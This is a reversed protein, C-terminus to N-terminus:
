SGRYTSYAYPALLLPVHHSSAPDTVEFTVAVEPYFGTRGGARFYDGTAFTVRYIGVGLDDDGEIDGAHRWRGDDDTVGSGIRQWGGETARELSLALGRAPRGVAADLVHSSIRV